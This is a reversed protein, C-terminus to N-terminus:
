VKVKQQIAASLEDLEEEDFDEEDDDDDFLDAEEQGLDLHTAPAAKSGAPAATSGSPGATGGAAAAAGGGSGSGQAGEEEGEGEDDSGEEEESEEWMEGEPRVKKISSPETAARERARGAAARARDLMDTIEKEEEAMNERRLDDAGSAGADDEVTFGEQMFLERGTVLGKKKREENEADRKAKAKEQKRARWVKFVQETLPTRAEIKARQEEIEDAVDRTNRAEEELLEKMQSKLVYGPPLAHKYKCENGNPCKWFWGYQHKEVVELFFKCIIHTTNTATEKGHKEAVVKELKEQDWDDMGEEDDDLNRQDAFLSIKAGKSEVGLDHSYKCKFGKTCQGHRFFECLISKPDVGPPVKPQKIAVAFLSDLEKQREADQKKKDKLLQPDLKGALAAVRAAKAVNTDGQQQVAKVYQQVAKSKSKNKLGFTKDEIARKSKEKEAKPPM